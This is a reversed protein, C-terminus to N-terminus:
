EKPAPPAPPEHTGLNLRDKVFKLMAGAMSIGADNLNELVSLFETACIYTVVLSFLLDPKHILSLAWDGAASIGITVIYFIIKEIFKERMTKSNIEGCLHAASISRFSQSITPTSKPHRALYVKHGLALFKTCIDLIELAIFILLIQFHVQFYDSFVIVIATAAIKSPWDESIRKCFSILGQHWFAIFFSIALILGTIKCQSKKFFDPIQM